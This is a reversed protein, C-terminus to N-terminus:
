ENDAGMKELDRKELVTATTQIRDIMDDSWWCYLPDNNAFPADHAWWLFVALGCDLRKNIYAELANMAWKIPSEANGAQAPLLLLVHSDDMEERKEMDAYASKWQPLTMIRCGKGRLHFTMAALIIESRLGVGKFVVLGGRRSIDPGATRLWKAMGRAAKTDYESIKTGHFRPMIGAALLSDRIHPPTVPPSQNNM